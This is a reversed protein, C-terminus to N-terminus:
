KFSRHTAAWSCLWAPIHVRRSVWARPQHVSVRDYNPTNRYCPHLIRPSQRHLLTLLRKRFIIKMSRCACRIFTIASVLFIHTKVKWAPWNMPNSPDDPGDWDVINDDVAEDRKEPVTNSTNSSRSINAELDNGKFGAGLRDVRAELKNVRDNNIERSEDKRHGEQVKAEIQESKAARNSDKHQFSDPTQKREVADAESTSGSKADLFHAKYEEDISPSSKNFATVPASLTKADEM